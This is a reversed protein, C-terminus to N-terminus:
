LGIQARDDGMAIALAMVAPFERFYKDITNHMMIADKKKIVIIVNAGYCRSTQQRM